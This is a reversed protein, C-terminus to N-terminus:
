DRIMHLPKWLGRFFLQFLHQNVYINVQCTKGGSTTFQKGAPDMGTIRDLKKSYDYEMANSLFSCTHAGLSHGLCHVNLSSGGLLKIIRETAIGVYRTNAAPPDYNITWGGSAGKEWDVSLVGLKSSPDADLVEKAMHGPSEQGLHNRMLDM